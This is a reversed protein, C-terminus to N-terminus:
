KIAFLYTDLECINADNKWFLFSNGLWQQWIIKRLCMILELSLYQECFCLKWCEVSYFFAECYKSQFDAFNAHPKLKLFFHTWAACFIDFVFYTRAFHHHKWTFFLRAILSSHPKHVSCVQQAHPGSLQCRLPWSWGGSRLFVNQLPVSYTYLAVQAYCTFCFASPIPGNHHLRVRPENLAVCQM